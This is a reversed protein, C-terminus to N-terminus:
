LIEFVRLSVLKGNKVTNSQGLPDFVVNKKSDLVVFHSYTHGTTKWEYCGILYENEKPVYKIDKINQVNVSNVTKKIDHLRIEQQLINLLVLDPRNMFCDDEVWQKGNTLKKNFVYFYRILDANVKLISEAIYVISSFYCGTDGIVKAIKQFPIIEIKNNQMTETKRKEM